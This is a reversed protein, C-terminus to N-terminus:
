IHNYKENLKKLKGEYYEKLSILDEIQKQKPKTNTKNGKEILKDVFERGYKDIM